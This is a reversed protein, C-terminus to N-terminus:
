SVSRLRPLRSPAIEAAPEKRKERLEVLVNRFDERLAEVNVGRFRPMFEHTLTFGPIAM